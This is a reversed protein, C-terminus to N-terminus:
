KKVSKLNQKVELMAKLMANTPYIRRSNKINHVTQYADMLAEKECDSINTEDLDFGTVYICQETRIRWQSAWWNWFLKSRSMAQVAKHNGFWFVDLWEIGMEFLDIDYDVSTNNRIFKKVQM